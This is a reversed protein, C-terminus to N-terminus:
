IVYTLAEELNSCTLVTFIKFHGLRLEYIISESRGGMQFGCRLATAGLSTETTYIVSQNARFFKRGLILQHVNEISVQGANDVSSPHQHM